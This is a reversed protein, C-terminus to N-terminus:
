RDKRLIWESRDELEGTRRYGLRKFFLMAPENHLSVSLFVSRSKVFIKREIFGVFQRGVGKRRLEKRIMLFQICGGGALVPEAVFSAVGALSSDMEMVYVRRSELMGELAQMPSVGEETLLGVGQEQDLIAAAEAIDRLSLLRIKAM